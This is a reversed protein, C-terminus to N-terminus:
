LVDDTGELAKGYNVRVYQNGNAEVVLTGNAHPYEGPARGNGNGNDNTYTGNGNTAPQRNRWQAADIKAPNEAWDLMGAIKVASYGEGAWAALARVWNAIPPNREAILKMQATQPWRGHFDRYAIVAPHEIYPNKSKSARPPKAAVPTAQADTQAAFSFLDERIQDERRQDTTVNRSADNCQTVGRSVAHCQTVNEDSANSDRPAARHRQQRETATPDERKPQRKEWAALRNDPTIIGKISMADLIAVIQSEDWGTFAAYTEVDFGAVSGREASQSACDLLAWAIASVMGPAVQARRAIVLWKPDTPAGHWSRFWDMDM